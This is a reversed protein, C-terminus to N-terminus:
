TGHGFEQYGEAGTFIVDVWIRMAEPSPALLYYSKEHTKVIFTLQPNPSKVSNLHDLYVEEIAQFYAGGRAKKESKDNYYTLTHKNRDFVFWRKSWGNLKSGKKHLFGRCSSSNIIVHPCLVVQHGASEIHQRLDLDSGRIPLYRTLPRQKDGHPKTRKKNSIEGFDTSIESIESMPRPSDAESSGSRIQENSTPSKSVPREPQRGVIEVSNRKEGSEPVVCDQRSQAWKIRVEHQVRQKLALVRQREQEIVQSGQQCLHLHRKREIDKLSEITKRGLSGQEENISIPASSTVKSIRDIDDQSPCKTGIGTELVSKEQLLKENFSQSMNYVHDISTKTNSVIVSCSLDHIVNLSLNSLHKDLDKSKDSDSDTSEEQDSEQHAFVSLDNDIRRLVFSCKELKRMFEDRRMRIIKVETNNNKSINYKQQELEQIQDKVSDIKKSLDLIERQVEERSALWDAEEELHHFELDEFAKKENDLIEQAKLYEEFVNEYKPDTKPTKALKGEIQLMNEQALELKEKCKLQDEDQKTQRHSMSEELKQACNFLKNKRHELKDLELLKAKHEGSILANELEIDRQLEEEHIETEAIHRKISSIQSLIEKREKRIKEIKQKDNINNPKPKKNYPTANLNAPLSTFSKEELPFIFKTNERGALIKDTELSKEDNITLNQLLYQEAELIAFKNEIIEATDKSKGDRNSSAITKIRTRPSQHAPVINEYPSNCKTTRFDDVQKMEVNDYNANIRELSNDRNISINEYSSNNRRNEHQVIEVDRPSPPPTTYVPSLPGYQRKDRPLSGNTKIRNPTLKNKESQAQKEYEVCMNLIEELRAQEAKGIEQEKIREQQAQTRKLEADNCNETIETENKCNNPTTSRLHPSPNRNYNPSPTLARNMNINKHSSSKNNLENCELNPNKPICGNEYIIVKNNINKKESVTVNVYQPSKKGFRESTKIQQKENYNLESYNLANQPLNKSFNQLDPPSKGLVDKAPTNVTVLNSSFVKPSISKKFNQQALYEFKSVKTMISSPVPEEVGSEILSEKSNKRPVAPPKKNYKSQFSNDPEFTISAMSIRPNPLVSKMIKAEAPHNFRMYNSRGITLMVGQSLRTPRSIKVGDVSLNDSLPYITVVGESNEIHCHLPLVGTGQVRIDVGPGCGLTVRGQPIPHLTVSTSLRDGGINVLHPTDTQLKLARGGSDSLEPSSETGSLGSM